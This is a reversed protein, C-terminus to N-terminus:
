VVLMSEKSLTYEIYDLADNIMAFEVPEDANLFTVFHEFLLNM